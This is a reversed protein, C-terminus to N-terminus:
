RSGHKPASSASPGRTPTLFTEGTHAFSAMASGLKGLIARACLWAMSWMLLALVWVGGFSMGQNIASGSWVATEMRLSWHSAFWAGALPVLLHLLAAILTGLHRFSFWLPKWILDVRELYSLAMGIAANRLYALPSDALGAPEAITKPPSKTTAALVQDVSPGRSPANQTM